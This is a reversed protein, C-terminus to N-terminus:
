PKRCHRHQREYARAVAAVITVSCPVLLVYRDGCHTCRFVMQREPPVTLADRPALNDWIVHAPAAM